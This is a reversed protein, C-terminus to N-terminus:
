TGADESGGKKSIVAIVLLFLPIIVGMLLFFPPIINKIIYSLEVADEWLKVSLIGIVLGMAISTVGYSKLRLLQSAALTSCYHFVSVKIFGGMIWIMVVLPDVNYLYPYLRIERAMQLTPFLIIITQQGLVLIVAMVVLLQIAGVSLIAKRIVSQVKAPRTLCPTLMLMIFIEFFFVSAPIAGKVAPIIGKEFVPFLNGPMIVPIIFLIIVMLMFVILPLVTDNVRCLVELGHRVVYIAAIVLWIVFVVQPTENYFNATLLESFERLVIAAIYVFFGVYVIGIIWGLFKGLLKKSYGIITDEPFRKGLRGIIEGALLGYATVILVSVWADQRAEDYMSHPLLMISTPIITTVILFIAQRNSIRGRELM